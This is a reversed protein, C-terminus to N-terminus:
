VRKVTSKYFARDCALALVSCTIGVLAGGLVDSPYHVGLYVRSVAVLCGIALSYGIVFWRLRRRDTHQYVLLAVSTFFVVSAITHGSPFSGSGVSELHQVISPRDRAFLAKLFASIPAVAGMTTALTVAARRQSALWAGISLGATLLLLVPWSGLATVSLFFKTLEPSRHQAFWNLAQHDFQETEREAIESALEMFMLACAGLLGGGVILPSVRRKKAEDSSM